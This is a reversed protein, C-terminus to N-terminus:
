AGPFYKEIAPLWNMKLLLVILATYALSIAVDRALDRRTYPRAEDKLVRATGKHLLVFGLVNTIWYGVVVGPKFAPKYFLAVFWGFGLALPVNIFTDNWWSLPSLLFGILGILGGGAKRKWHM